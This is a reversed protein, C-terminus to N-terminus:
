SSLRSAYCPPSTIVQKHDNNDQSAATSNANEVSGRSVFMPLASLSIVGINDRFAEFQPRALPKTLGDAIQSSTRVYHPSIVSDSRLERLWLLKIDLYRSLKALTDNEIIAIAGQNDCYMPTPGVQPFGLSALFQREWVIDKALENQARLESGSTSQDVVPHLGAAVHVTSGAFQLVTGYRSRRTDMDDAFSADAYGSLQLSTFAPTPDGPSIGGLALGYEDTLLCTYLYRFVLDLADFHIQRPCKMYRCLTTVIYYLELRTNLLYLLAGVMSAYKTSSCNSSESVSPPDLFRVSLDAHPHAPIWQPKAKLYNYRELIVRTYQTQTLLIARNGRSRHIEYGTFKGFDESSGLDKMKFGSIMTSKFSAIPEPTGVLLLDDVHICVFLFDGQPLAKSLIVVCPDSPIQEYGNTTLHSILTEYWARGAQKAGYLAKKLRLYKARPNKSQYGEPLKAFVYEELEANLFATDVDMGHIELDLLAALVFLTRIAKSTAVPSATLNYDFGKRQRYGQLVLRAKFRIVNGAADTKLAFVWRTGLGFYNVLKNEWEEFTGNMEHAQYEAYCAALWYSANKSALMSKWSTPAPEDAIIDSSSVVPSRFHSSPLLNLKSTDVDPLSLLDVAYATTPLNPLPHGTLSLIRESHAVTSLATPDPALPPRRTDNLPPASIGHPLLQDSSVLDLAHAQSSSLPTPTDPPIPVYEWRPRSAIPTYKAVLADGARTAEDDTGSSDSDNPDYNLSVPSLIQTSLFDLPIDPPMVPTQPIPALSNTPLTVSPPSYPSEPSSVSQLEPMNAVPTSPLLIDATATDVPLTSPEEPSFTVSMPSAAAPTDLDYYAATEDAADESLVSFSNATEFTPVPPVATAFMQMLTDVAVTYDHSTIIAQQVRLSKATLDERFVVHRSEYTKGTHIDVLRYSSSRESYGVLSCLAAKPSLKNQRQEKEIFVFALCGIRRLHRVDPKHEHILEYPSKYGETSVTYLRNTVYVAALFADGWYTLALGSDHIASLAKEFHTRNKREAIGNQQKTRAASYTITVGLAKLRTILDFDVYEGALDFHAHKLRRKTQNELWPLYDFFLSLFDSKNSHVFGKSFRSAVDTITSAFRAGSPTRVPAPGWGDVVVMEGPLMSQLLAKPQDPWPVQHMKGLVCGNCTCPRDVIDYAHFGTVTKKDRMIKLYKPTTFMFRRHWLLTEAMAPSPPVTEVDPTPTTDTTLYCKGSVAPSPGPSVEPDVGQDGDFDSTNAGSTSAPPLSWLLSLPDLPIRFVAGESSRIQCQGLDCSVTYGSAVLAYQSILTKSLSPVHLIKDLYQLDPCDPSYLYASGYGIAELTLSNDALSIKLPTALRIYHLPPQDPSMHNPTCGSDFITETTTPLVYQSRSKNSNSRTFAVFAKFMGDNEIPTSPATVQPASQVQKWRLFDAYQALLATQQVANSAAPKVRWPVSPSKLSGTYPGHIKEWKAKASPTWTATEVQTVCHSNDHFCFGHCDCWQRSAPASSRGAPSALYASPTPTHHAYPKQTGLDLEKEKIQRMALALDVTDSLINYNDKLSQYDAPLAKLLQCFNAFHGVHVGSIEREYAADIIRGYCTDVSERPLLTISSYADRTREQTRLSTSILSGLLSKYLEHCTLADFQSKISPSISAKLAVILAAENRKLRAEDSRLKDRLATKSALSQLSVHFLMRQETLHLDLASMFDKNTTDPTGSGTYTTQFLSRELESDFRSHDAIIASRSTTIAADIGLDLLSIYNPTAWEVLLSKWKGVTSSTLFGTAISPPLKLVLSLPSPLSSM